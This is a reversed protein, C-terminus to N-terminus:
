QKSDKFGPPDCFIERIVVNHEYHLTYRLGPSRATELFDLFFQIQQCAVFEESKELYRWFLGIDM